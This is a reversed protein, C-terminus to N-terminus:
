GADLGTVDHGDLRVAGQDIRDLGAVARLLSTKGSGSGWRRGRARRREIAMSVESLRSTRGTLVTVHDLDVSSMLADGRAGLGGRCGRQEVAPPVPPSFLSGLGDAADTDALWNATPAAGARRRPRRRRSRRVRWCRPGCRSWSSRERMSVPPALGTTFPWVDIREGFRARLRDLVPIGLLSQSGVSGAGFLQWSSFPRRGQDRLAEETARFPSPPGADPPKTTTLHRGASSSPCGWFPSATGTLRRNFEAAAAFRNNANRDDDCSATRRAAGVDRVV